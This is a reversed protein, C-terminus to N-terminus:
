NRLPIVIKFLMINSIVQLGKDTAWALEVKLHRSVNVVGM